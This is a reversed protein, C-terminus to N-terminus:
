KIKFWKDKNKLTTYNESLVHEVITDSNSINAVYYQNLTNTQNFNDLIYELVRLQVKDNENLNDYNNYFNDILLKLELLKQKDM